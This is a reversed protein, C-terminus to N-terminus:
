KWRKIPFRTKLFELKGNLEKYGWPLLWFTGLVMWVGRIFCHWFIFLNRFLVSGKKHDNRIYDFITIGFFIVLGASRANYILFYKPFKNANKKQPKLAVPLTKTHRQDWFPAAGFQKLRRSRILVQAALMFIMKLDIDGGYFAYLHFEYIPSLKIPATFIQNQPRAFCTSFQRYNVYKFARACRKNEIAYKASTASVIQGCLECNRINKM